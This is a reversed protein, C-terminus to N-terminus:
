CGQIERRLFQSQGVHSSGCQRGDRQNEYTSTVNAISKTAAPDALRKRADHKSFRPRADATAIAAANTDFDGSAADSASDTSKARANGTAGTDTPAATNSSAADGTTTRARDDTRDTAARAAIATQPDTARTSSRIRSTGTCPNREGVRHTRPRLLRPNPTTPLNFTFSPPLLCSSISSASLWSITDLPSIAIIRLVSFFVNSLIANSISNPTLPM